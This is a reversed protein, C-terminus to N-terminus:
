TFTLARRIGNAYANRAINIYQERDMGAVTAIAAVNSVTSCTTVTGVTTVTPITAPFVDVSVRQRTQADVNGMAELLKVM